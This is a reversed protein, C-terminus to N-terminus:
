KSHEAFIKILDMPKDALILPKEGAVKNFYGDGNGQAYVIYADGSPAVVDLMKQSMAERGEMGGIHVLVIPVHKAKAADILAKSRASETELNVGAVGFGKHSVGVTVVITKADGIDADTAMPKFNVDALKAKQALVKVTNCDPSQGVSTLLVPSNIKPFDAAAAFASGLGITLACTALLTHLKTM